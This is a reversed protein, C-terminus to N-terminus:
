LSGKVSHVEKIPALDISVQQYEEFDPDKSYSEESENGWGEGDENKM